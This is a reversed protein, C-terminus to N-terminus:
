SMLGVQRTGVSRWREVLFGEVRGGAEFVPLDRDPSKQIADGEEVSDDELAVPVSGDAPVVVVVEGSGIQGDAQLLEM